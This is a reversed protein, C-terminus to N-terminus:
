KTHSKIAHILNERAQVPDSVVARVLWEFEGIFTETDCEYFNDIYQEMQEQM